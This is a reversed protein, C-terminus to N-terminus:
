KQEPLAPRLFGERTFGRCPVGRSDNERPSKVIFLGTSEINSARRTYLLAQARQNVNQNVVESKTPFSIAIIKPAVHRIPNFYISNNIPYNPLDKGQFQSFKWKALPWGLMALSGQTYTPTSRFHQRTEKSTRTDDVNLSLCFINEILPSRTPARLINNYLWSRHPFRGQFGSDGAPIKKRAHSKKGYHLNTRNIWPLPPGNLTAVLLFGGTGRKSDNPPRVSGSSFIAHGLLFSSLHPCSWRWKLRSVKSTAISGTRQLYSEAFHFEELRRTM